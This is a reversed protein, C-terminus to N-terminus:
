SIEVPNSRNSHFSVIRPRENWELSNTDMKFKWAFSCGVRGSFLGVPKQPPVACRSGFVPTGDRPCRTSKVCLIAKCLQAMTLAELKKIRVRLLPPAIVAWFIKMNQSAWTTGPVYKSKGDRGTTFFYLGDQRTGFFSTYREAEDHFYNFTSCRGTGDLFKVSM